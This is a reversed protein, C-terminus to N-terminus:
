CRLMSPMAISRVELLAKALKKSRSKLKPPAGEQCGESAGRKGLQETLFARYLDYMQPGQTAALAREYTAIAAEEPLSPSTSPQQPPHETLWRRALIDWAEPDEHFEAELSSYIAQKVFCPM